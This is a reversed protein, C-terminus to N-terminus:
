MSCELGVRVFHRPELDFSAVEDDSDYFEFRHVGILGGEITLHLGSYIGIRAATGVTLISYRLEPNVVQYIDPDGRYNDGDSSLLLGLDLRPTARYWLEASAPLIGKATLNKGNNWDFALVPLPIPHGFRTSYAAGLGLSLRESFRRIIVTAVQVCFDDLSVKAELDSALTPAILGWMSWKRSLQRQLLLTYRASHVRELPFEMERYMFETLQYSLSNVLVTRGQALVIPYSMSASLKRLQAETNDIYTTDSGDISQIIRDSFEQYPMFESDLSVSLGTQARSEMSACMAIWIVIVLFHWRLAYTTKHLM